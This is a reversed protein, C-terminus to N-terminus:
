AQTLHLVWVEIPEYSASVRLSELNVRVRDTVEGDFAHEISDLAIMDAGRVAVTYLVGRHNRGRVQLPEM